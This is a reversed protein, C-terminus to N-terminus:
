CLGHTNETELEVVFSFSLYATQNGLSVGVGARKRSQVFIWSAGQPPAWGCWPLDIASRRRLRFLNRRRQRVDSMRPGFVMALVNYHGRDAFSRHDLFPV